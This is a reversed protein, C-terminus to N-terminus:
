FAHERNVVLSRLRRTTPNAAPHIVVKAIPKGVAVRRFADEAGHFARFHRTVVLIASVVRQAKGLVIIPKADIRRLVLTPKFIGSSNSIRQPDHGSIKSLLMIAQPRVTAVPRGRLYKSFDMLVCTIHLRAPLGNIGLYPKPKVLQLLAIRLCFPLADRAEVASTLFHHVIQIGSVLEADDLTM